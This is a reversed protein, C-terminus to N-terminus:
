VTEKKSRPKNHAKKRPRAKRESNKIPIILPFNLTFCHELSVLAQKPHAKNGKLEKVFEMLLQEVHIIQILFTTLILIKKFLNKWFKRKLVLQHPQTYSEM